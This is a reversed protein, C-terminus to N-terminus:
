GKRPCAISSLPWSTTPTCTAGGQRGRAGPRHPHPHRQPPDEDPRPRAPSKVLERVRELDRRRICVVDASILVAQDLVGTADSAEIALATASLPDNVRTSIRLHFQGCLAAPRAPTIDASAWGISVEGARSGWAPEAAMAVCAVVVLALIVGSTMM